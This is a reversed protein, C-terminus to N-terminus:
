KGASKEKAKKAKIERQREAELRNDAYRMWQGLKDVGPILFRDGEKYRIGRFFGARTALVEIGAPKTKKEPAKPAEPAVESGEQNEVPSSADPPPPMRNNSM